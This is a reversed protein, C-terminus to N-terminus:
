PRLPSPPMVGTSSSDMYPDQQQIISPGSMLPQGQDFDDGLAIVRKNEPDTMADYMADTYPKVYPGTFESGIFGGGLAGLGKSIFNAVPNPLTPMFKMGLAGGALAGPFEKATDKVIDDKDRLNQELMQPMAKAQEIQQEGASRQAQIRANLEQAARVREEQDAIDSIRNLEQDIYDSTINSM